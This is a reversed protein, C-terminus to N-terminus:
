MRSCLVKRSFTSLSAAITNLFAVANMEHVKLEELEGVLQQSVKVRLGVSSSTLRNTTSKLLTLIKSIETLSKAIKTSSIALIVEYPIVSSANKKLVPLLIFDQLISDL